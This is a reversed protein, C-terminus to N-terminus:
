QLSLEFAREAEDAEREEEQFMKWQKKLSSSIKILDRMVLALDNYQEYDDTTRFFSIIYKELLKMIEPSITIQVQNGPALSIELIHAWSILRDLEALKEEVEGDDEEGEIEEDEVEMTYEKMLEMTRRITGFAHPYTTWIPPTKPKTSKRM